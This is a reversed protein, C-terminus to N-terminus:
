SNPMKDNEETKKDLEYLYEFLTEKEIQMTLRYHQLHIFKREPKHKSYIRINISKTDISMSSYDFDTNYIESISTFDKSPFNEKYEKNLEPQFYRILSAEFITIEQGESVRKKAKKSLQLLDEGTPRQVNSKCKVLSTALDHCQIKLGVIVVEENTGKKLIELAIKQVKDHNSIRYDITKKETRGFAQGIYLVELDTVYPDISQNKNNYWCGFVLSVMQLHNIKQNKGNWDVDYFGDQFSNIKISKPFIIGIHEKNHKDDLFYFRTKNCDKESVTDEFYIKKRKCVLYIHYNEKKIYDCLKQQSLDHPDFMIIESNYFDLGLNWNMNEKTKLKKIECKM